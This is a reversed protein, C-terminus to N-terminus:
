VKRYFILWVLWAPIYALVAIWKYPAVSFPNKNSMIGGVMCLMTHYFRMKLNTAYVASQKRLVTYSVPNEKIIKRINKTYGDELYEGVAVIQPLLSLKYIQDIKQYVYSEGMFKENKAVWFPYKKLIHTRYILETDGKFHYRSYLDTLTSECIEKPFETGVPQSETKGRLAVIGAIYKKYKVNTWAKLIIDVANDLMYEDSDVCMFLETDSHSVGKNFARQKGGNEQKFYRIIIEDEAIWSKVVEETNDTSGDDVIIWQFDKNTQRKLSKYLEKLIEGRNYTPTFVTLTKKYM